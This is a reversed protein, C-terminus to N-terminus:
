RGSQRPRYPHHPARGRWLAECLRRLITSNDSCARSYHRGFSDPVIVMPVGGLYNLMAVHARIFDPVRQTPTCTAFMLSSAPLVGVFLEVYVKERTATDIYHPRLGSYDVFLREGPTHHQRMVTPLTERYEKVKAALHSYSLSGHPDERRFEEWLLQLTM